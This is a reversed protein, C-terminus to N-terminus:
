LSRVSHIFFNVAPYEWLRKRLQRGLHKVIHSVDIFRCVTAGTAFHHIQVDALDNFCCSRM